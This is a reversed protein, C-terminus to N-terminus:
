GVAATDVVVEAVTSAELSRRRRDRRRQTDRVGGADSADDDRV